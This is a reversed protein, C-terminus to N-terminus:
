SKPSHQLRIGLSARSSRSREPVILTLATVRRVSARVSASPRPRPVLDLFDAPWERSLADQLLNCSGVSSIACQGM